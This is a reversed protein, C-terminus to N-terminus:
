ELFQGRYEIEHSSWQTLTPSTLTEQQHFVATDCSGADFYGHPYWHTRPIGWQDLGRIYTIVREDWTSPCPGYSVDFKLVGSDHVSHPNGYSVVGNLGKSFSVPNAPGEHAYVTSASALSVLLNSTVIGVFYIFGRRSFM